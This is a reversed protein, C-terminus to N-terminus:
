KNKQKNAFGKGIYVTNYLLQSLQYKSNNYANELASLSIFPYRSLPGELEASYNGRGSHIAIYIDYKGNESFEEKLMEMFEYVRNNIKNPKKKEKLRKGIVYNVWVSNKLIKEILGLHVSLFHTGNKGDRFSSGEFLDSFSMEQECITRIAKVYQKTREERKKRGSSNSSIVRQYFDSEKSSNKIFLETLVKKIIEEDITFGNNVNLITSIEEDLSNWNLIRLNKLALWEYCDKSSNYLREDIITIRTL